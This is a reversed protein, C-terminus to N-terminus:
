HLMTVEIAERADLAPLLALLRAALISKGAGPPGIMVLNNCGAAAIEPARRATEQGKLDAMDFPM